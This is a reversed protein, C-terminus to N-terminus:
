RDAAEAPQPWLALSQRIIEDLEAKSEGGGFTFTGTLHKWDDLSLGYLQQAIFTELAAREKVDRPNKLLTGAFGALKKKQAATLQPIPLEEVSSINLNASVKNRVYFNWVLSNFLTLITKLESAEYITQGLEGKGTLKYSFPNLYYISHAMCADSPVLAAILTRENTSSAVARYSLRECEYQLKFKKRKFIKELLVSLDDKKAPVKEGELTKVEADRVIQALRFIEKRLLEERAEKEVVFYGAPAFHDDFQFIMKGEYLPLQGASLKKGETKHFFRADETMHFERRFVYELDKVLQREARIRKCLQYDTESRFEMIGFNEPSFQHIMEISYRVPPLFVNKPDHLYFRADFTGSSKEGKVVKFFGFKFQPHVDPFIKRHREKGQVIEDYGKNEFSTLEEFANEQTLWRRLDACGEDTQLGSPVLLSLRGGDRVLNLDGEIFLKWLNWDGAGQRQFRRGLFEKYQEFWQQHEAWRKALEKDTKLKEGFWKDFGARDFSYKGIKAFEKAVPKVNEWPPNGIIGDFGAPMTPVGCQPTRDDCRSSGVQKPKGDAEFWCPWFHLAFGGPECPLNDGAFHEIFYARLKKRLALSEELAEHRMPNDIYRQRLESLKKLEAKHYEALWETQKSLEVDVLSDACHFNLELNPLIKVVDTKLDRYNYDAPSLKVAEKWINTKAVELAGPDKDAGFVHRLLIQAILIRRNDLNQTRRFALAAEVNPPMEALYMEGNDPKLIKLV